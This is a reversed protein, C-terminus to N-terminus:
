KKATKQSAIVNTTEHDKRTPFCKANGERFVFDLNRIAHHPISSAHKTAVLLQLPRQKGHQAHFQSFEILLIVLRNMADFDSSSLSFDAEAALQTKFFFLGEHGLHCLRQHGLCSADGGYCWGRCFAINRGGCIRLSCHNKFFRAAPMRCQNSSPPDSQQNRSEHQDM